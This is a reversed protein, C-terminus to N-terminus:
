RAARLLHLDGPHLRNLCVVRCFEGPTIANRDLQHFMRRTFEAGAYSRVANHTLPTRARPKGAAGFERALEDLYDRSESPDILTLRRARMVVASPTVQLNKAADKIADLSGVGIRRVDSAPMLVEEALEYERDEILDDTQDDYSVPAFRGRAVFVALLILTFIQRGTPELTPSQEGSTLFIFPIKKDRVCLGSFTAGRPLQQPMVSRQSRSVFIQNAELCEILFELAKKKTTRSRFDPLTFGLLDRLEDADASVSRGPRRLRGIVRNPELSTDLAKIAGQKRILDKIILEVDRLRITSRSNLSFSGKSVGALLKSTKDELQATVVDPPAFFLPYPIEAKRALEVFEKFGIVSRDLAKQYDSYGYVVSSEFLATFSARDLPVQGGDVRLMIPGLEDDVGRRM